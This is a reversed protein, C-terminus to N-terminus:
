QTFYDLQWQMEQESLPFHLGDRPNLLSKPPIGAIRLQLRMGTRAKFGAKWALAMIGKTSRADFVKQVLAYPYSSRLSLARLAFERDNRDVAECLMDDDLKGAAHLEAVLDARTKPRQDAEMKETEELRRRLSKRLDEAFEPPLDHREALITLLSSAVFQSIKRMARLSLEPRTVLPAHWMDVHSSDEVLADLTEERVQASPNALLAAVAQEDRTIAVADSVKATVQRRKAIATLHGSAAGGAIIELLDQETLLPSYELIPAAVITEIDRALRLVLDHPVLPSAKIEEALAARVTPLADGALIGITEIAMERLRNAQNETLHPLVRGIKRALELRVDDNEDRALLVRAHMPTAPNAAIERRVAPSTDEALFYLVEPRIDTQRAVARRVEPNADQILEKSEEYSLPEVRTPRRGFLRSLM